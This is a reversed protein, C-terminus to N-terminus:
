ALQMLQFFCRQICLLTEGDVRIYAADLLFFSFFTVSMGTFRSNHGVESLYLKPKQAHSHTTSFVFSRFVIMDSIIDLMTEKARLVYIWAFTYWVFDIRVPVICMCCASFNGNGFHKSPIHQELQDFLSRFYTMTPHMQYSHPSCCCHYTTTCNCHVVIQERFVPTCKTPFLQM